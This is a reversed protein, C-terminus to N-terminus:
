QLQGLLGGETLTSMEKSFELGSNKSIKEYEENWIQSQMQEKYRDRIMQAERDLKVEDGLYYDGLQKQDRQLM